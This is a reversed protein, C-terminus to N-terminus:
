KMLSVSINIDDSASIKEEEICGAFMAVLVITAIVIWGVIIRKKM